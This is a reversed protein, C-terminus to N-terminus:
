HVLFVTASIAAGALGSAIGASWFYSRRTLLALSSFVIAIELFIEGLHLRLAQRGRVESEHELERAKDQIQETDKAYRSTNAEYKQGIAAASPGLVGLLDRAFESQYRRISKSQYYAWQDSAKTQLLLEETTSIHGYVSVLALVAAVIAMTAGVKKEFPEHAKEIAEELEHSDM